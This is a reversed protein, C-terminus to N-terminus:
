RRTYTGDFATTWKGTANASEWFQRVSGDANPTWTIRHRTIKGDAESTQGELLMKGERLGGELLLLTGSSDVWTQHWVKRTADYINLSEGSYGRATTYREHLVCGKYERDIRNVGALKGDPTHVNWEGLWFDFVRYAPGDCADAAVAPTSDTGLFEPNLRWVVYGLVSAFSVWLLYPVLLAGALARLRWFAIVTAVILIWLLVIDAFALAGRHWGFFLWSWLANLALQLLFLTLAGRAARLGGARWALWAAVGMLAYLVTWVPGFLWPPPAWGPLVLQRYFSGAEVSAAAGIAAAVFAVVLWGALGAIQRTLPIRPM